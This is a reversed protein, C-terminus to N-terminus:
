KSNKSKERLATLEEKLSLMMKTQEVARQANIKAVVRLESAVAYQMRAYLGAAIAIVAFAICLITLMENSKKLRAVQEHEKSSDM